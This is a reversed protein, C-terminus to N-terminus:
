HTVIINNGRNSRNVGALTHDGRGPKNLIRFVWRCHRRILRQYVTLLGKRRYISGDFLRLFRHINDAPPKLWGHIKNTVSLRQADPFQETQKRFFLNLHTYQPPLRRKIGGPNDALCVKGSLPDQMKLIAGPLARCVFLISKVAIPKGTM